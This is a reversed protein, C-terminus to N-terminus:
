RYWYPTQRTWESDPYREHLISFAQRSLAGTGPTTSHHVSARRTLRVFRHLLEPTDNHDPHRRVLRFVLRAFHELRSPSQTIRRREAHVPLLTPSVAGGEPTREPRSAGCAGWECGDQQRSGYHTEFEDEFSFDHPDNRALHLALYFTTATRSELVDDSIPPAADLAELSRYFGIASRTKNLLVGRILGELAVMQRQHRPLSESQALASWERLSMRQLADRGNGHLAVRVSEAPGEDLTILRYRWLYRLAEQPTRALSLRLARIANVTAKPGGRPSHELEEVLTTLVRRAAPFQRREGLRRAQHYRRNISLLPGESHLQTLPHWAEDAADTNTERLTERSGATTEAHIECRGHVLFQGFSSTCVEASEGKTAWWAIDRLVRVVDTKLDHEVLRQGLTDLVEGKPRPFLEVRDLLQGLARKGKPDSVSALRRRIDVATLSDALFLAYAARYLAIDKWPSDTAAIAEFIAAAEPYRDSFLFASARQYMRDHRALAPAARNPPSPISGPTSCNAFVQDQAEVWSRVVDAELEGQRRELTDAATLFADPPCVLRHAYNAIRYPEPKGAPEMAHVAAWSNRAALWRTLAGDVDCDSCHGALDGAGVLAEVEETSFVKGQDRAWAIALYPRRWEPSILPLMPDTLLGRLADERSEADESYTVFGCARALQPVLLSCFLGLTLCRFFWTSVRLM